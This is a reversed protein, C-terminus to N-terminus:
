GLAVWLDHILGEDESIEKLRRLAVEPAAKPVFRDGVEVAWFLIVFQDRGLHVGLLRQQKRDAKFRIECRGEAPGDGVRKHCGEHWDSRPLSALAKLRSVFKAKLAASGNQCADRVDSEGGRDAYYRFSWLLPM